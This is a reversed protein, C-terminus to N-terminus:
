TSFGAMSLATRVDWFLTAIEFILLFFLLYFAQPWRHELSLIPRLILRRIPAIQLMMTSGIGLAAGAIVDSAYHIGVYLRPACIMVIVYYLILPGVRRSASWVGWALAFFLAAHDSPFSSWTTWNAQPPLGIPPRFHLSPELLPRIRVPAAYALLRATFLAVLSGLVASLLMTRNREMEDGKFFWVAWIAGAVVGGKLLDSNTLFIASQDFFASRQAAQNFFLSISQDFLNM